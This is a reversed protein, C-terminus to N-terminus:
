GEVKIWTCLIVPPKEQNRQIDGFRMPAYKYIRHLSFENRYRTNLDEYAYITHQYERRIADLEAVRQHAEKVEIGLRWINIYTPRWGDIEIHQCLIECALSFSEKKRKEKMPGYDDSDDSDNADQVEKAQKQAQATPKCDEENDDYDNDKGQAKDM